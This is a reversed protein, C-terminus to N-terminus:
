NKWKGNERSSAAKKASKISGRNLIEVGGGFNHKKAFEVAEELTGKFNLVRNIYAGNREIIIM